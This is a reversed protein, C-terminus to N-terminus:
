TKRFNYKSFEPISSFKGLVKGQQTKELEIAQDDLQGIEEFERLKANVGKREDVSLCGAISPAINVDKEKFEGLVIAVLSTFVQQYHVLDLGEEDSDLMYEYQANQQFAINRFALVIPGYDM